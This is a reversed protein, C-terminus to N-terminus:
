TSMHAARQDRVISLAVTGMALAGVIEIIVRGAEIIM